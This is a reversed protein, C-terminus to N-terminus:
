KASAQPQWFARIDSDIGALARLSEISPYTEPKLNLRAFPMQKIVPKAATTVVLFLAGQELQFSEGAIKITGTKGDTTQCEVSVGALTGTFACVRQLPTETLVETRGSITGGGGEGVWVAFAPVSSTAGQYCLGIAISGQEVGPLPGKGADAAPFTYSTPGWVGVGPSPSQSRQCASLMLLAVLLLSYLFSTKVTRM